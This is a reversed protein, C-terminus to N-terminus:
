LGAPRHGTNTGLFDRRRLAAQGRFPCAAASEKTKLFSTYLLCPMDELHIIPGKLTRQPVKGAKKEPLPPNGLAELTEEMARRLSEEAHLGVEKAAPCLRIADECGRVYFQTIARAKEGLTTKDEGMLCADGLRDRICM